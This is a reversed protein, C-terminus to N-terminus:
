GPECRVILHLMLANFDILSGTGGVSRAKLAATRNKRASQRRRLDGRAAAFM